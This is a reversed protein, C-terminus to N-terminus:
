REVSGSSAEGAGAAVLILMFAWAFNSDVSFWGRMAAINPPRGYPYTPVRPASKPDSLIASLFRGLSQDM